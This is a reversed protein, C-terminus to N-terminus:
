RSTSVALRDRSATRWPGPRRRGSRRRARRRGSPPLGSAEGPGQPKVVPHARRMADRREGPIRSQGRRRLGPRLAADEFVAGAPVALVECPARGLGVARGIVDAAPVLLDAAAIEPGSPADVAAGDAMERLEDPALGRM